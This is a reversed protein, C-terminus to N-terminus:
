GLGKKLGSTLVGCGSVLVLTARVGPDVVENLCPHKPMRHYTEVCAIESAGTTKNKKM